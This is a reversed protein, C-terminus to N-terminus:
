EAWGNVNGLNDFTVRMLDGVITLNPMKKAISIMAESIYFSDMSLTNKIWVIRPGVGHDMKTSTQICMKFALYDNPMIMPIKVGIPDRSTIANPYSIELNMKKFFRETTVDANGIGCGNGHSKNSLDLVAIREIFPESIGLIASRGTVNPDMGAGSIDKGIEDVYLIDVKSFPIKPVLSKAEVLLVPEEKEIKEGPIAALKYTEHFADEIIGIGFAVNKKDIVVKAIEMINKSMVDFGYKHCTAAGHQKGLGIALMKMLGSEVAGRFDTHPKIRGVPIICDADNAFKDIHVPIGSSTIGIEITDMCSKIPAGVAESTIGYGALIEEQGMATAGGHSGMAPIIFPKGGCDKITQVLCHIIKDIDKIERSGTAIAVKDGPRIRELVHREKITEELEDNINKINGRRINYNVKAFRPIKVDQLLVEYINM